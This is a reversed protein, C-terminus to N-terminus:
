IERGEGDELAEDGRWSVEDTGISAAARDFYAVVPVPVATPDVRMAEKPERLTRREATRRYLLNRGTVAPEPSGFSAQVGEPPPDAM